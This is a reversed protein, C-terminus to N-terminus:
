QDFVCARSISFRFWSSIHHLYLDHFVNIPCTCSLSTDGKWKKTIMQVIMNGTWKMKWNEYRCITDEQLLQSLLNYHLCNAVYSPPLPSAAPMVTYPLVMYSFIFKKKRHLDGAKFLNTFIVAFYNCSKLKFTSVFIFFIHSFISLFLAKKTQQLLM